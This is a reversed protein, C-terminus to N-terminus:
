EQLSFEVETQHSNANLTGEEWGESGHRLFFFRLAYIGMSMGDQGRHRVGVRVVTYFLSVM